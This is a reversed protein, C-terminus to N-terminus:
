PCRGPHHTRARRRAVVQVPGGKLGLDPPLQERDILGLDGQDGDTADAGVPVPRLRLVAPGQDAGGACIDVDSERPIHTLNRYSGQAFIKVQHKSLATSAAIAARIEGETREMKDQEPKGPARGWVLLKPEWEASTM